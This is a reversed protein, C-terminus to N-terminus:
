KGPCVFGEGIFNHWKAKELAATKKIDLLHKQSSIYDNEISYWDQYTTLGNIYKRQSIEAQLKSANLYLERVSINEYADILSNYHSVAQAKLRNATNKMTEQVIKMQNSASKIDAYKKGGNFLNYSLSLGLDWSQKDPAWEKDFRSIVASLSISPWLDSKSKAYQAKQIDINYQAILFEPIESILKDFDPKPMDKKSLILREDTELIINDNRGLTKLLEASATEIYREAKRLDYEATKVDAEVRKLSGIDVNGSDYKLSIMDKNETRRDKIRKLLEVTEYAWMLNIYHTAAEYAADSVARNYTNEAAKLEAEKQKVENYTNFGSFLSLNANLGYSFNRSFKKESEGQSASGRFSVEPMYGCLSRNYAIKANDFNLRASIITPNNQLASIEIDKWSIKEAFAATYFFLISLLPIILNKM